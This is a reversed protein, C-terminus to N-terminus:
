KSINITQYMILLLTLIVNLGVSREIRIASAPAYEEEPPLLPHNYVVIREEEQPTLVRYFQFYRRLAESDDQDELNVKIARDRVVTHGDGGNLLFGTTVLRYSVDPAVPSYTPVYCRGCRAKASVVRGGPPRSFDYVVKLGSVQLFEGRSTEGDSRAGLELTALLDKGLMDVTVLQQRFPVAGLIDGATINGNAPPISANISMRIAGGNVIAIPASTWYSGEAKYMTTVYDVFSDVLVNGFNCERLRCTEGNLYTRTRGVVQKNYKDVAPRFEELLALMEGDQAIKEDLLIPQGQFRVLTGEKDFVVDLKGMYKTYAYAQVVPVIKGNKQVVRSPYTDEPKEKDPPPGNWLFSNTHGGIVLDVDKVEEAIRRDTKFGSHGLAIIINVGEKKLRECERRIATVEDQIRINGITAMLETEPTLYGIIGVKRGEVNLVVHPKVNAALVTENRFDINAAVIPFDAATVFPDLGSIGDDFEHNGLCTVDPKLANLFRAAIKWRHVSFWITGTYTDGANLYLVPASGNRSAAEARAQKVITAVRGFGGVYRGHKSETTQEFRAHMDNNHLITMKFEEEASMVMVSLLGIVYTTLVSNM